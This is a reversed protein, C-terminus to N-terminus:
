SKDKHLSKPPSNTSQRRPSGCLVINEEVLRQRIDTDRLSPGMTDKISPRNKPKMDSAHRLSDRPWDYSRDYSSATCRDHSWHLCWITRWPTLCICWSVARTDASQWQWHCHLLHIWTYISSSERQLFPTTKSRVEECLGILRRSWISWCICMRSEWTNLGPIRTSFKCGRIPM